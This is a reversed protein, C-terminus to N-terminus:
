LKEIKIFREIKTIILYCCIEFGFDKFVFYRKKLKGILPESKRLFQWKQGNKYVTIM